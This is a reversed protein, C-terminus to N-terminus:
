AILVQLPEHVIVYVAHTTDATIFLLCICCNCMRHTTPELGMKRAMKSFLVIPLVISKLAKNINPTRIVTLEFSKSEKPPLEIREGGAM